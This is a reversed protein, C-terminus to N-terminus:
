TVLFTTRLSGSAGCSVDITWRGRTSRPGMQWRWQILGAFLGGKAGLGTATIPARAGYHVKISCVVHSAARVRVTAYSGRPVPSSVYVLQPSAAAAAVFSLAVLALAFLVTTRM